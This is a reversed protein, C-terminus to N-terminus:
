IRSKQIVIMETIGSYQKPTYVKMAAIIKHRWDFATQIAIHYTQSCLYLSDGSSANESRFRILINM